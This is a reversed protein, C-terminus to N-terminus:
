GGVVERGRTGGGERLGRREKAKRGRRGEREEGGRRCTCYTHVYM